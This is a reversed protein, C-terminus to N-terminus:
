VGDFLGPAKPKAPEAPAPPTAKHESLFAAAKHRDKIAWCLIVRANGERRKTRRHGTARILGVKALGAVAAGIYRSDVDAPIAVAGRIVDTTAPGHEYLHRVFAIRVAKVLAARKAELDGLAKDRRKTGERLEATGAVALGAAEHRATGNTNGEM